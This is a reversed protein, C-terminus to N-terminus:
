QLIGQAAYDNGARHGFAKWGQLAIPFVWGSTEGDTVLLAEGDIAVVAYTKNRHVIGSGPLFHWCKGQENSM